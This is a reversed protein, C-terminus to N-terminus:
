KSAAQQRFRIASLVQALFFLKRRQYIWFYFTRLFGGVFTMLACHCRGLHFLGCQVFVTLLLVVSRCATCHAFTLMIVTLRPEGQLTATNADCQWMYQNLSRLWVAMLRGSQVSDFWVVCIIEVFIRFHVWNHCSLWFHFIYYLEPKKKNAAILRESQM